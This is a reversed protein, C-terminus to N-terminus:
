ILEEVKCKTSSRLMLFSLCKIRKLCETEVCANWTCDYGYMYMEMTIYEMSEM